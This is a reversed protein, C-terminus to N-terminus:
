RKAEYWYLFSPPNLYAFLRRPRTDAWLPTVPVLKNHPGEGVYPRGM